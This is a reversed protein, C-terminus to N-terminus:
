VSEELERYLSLLKPPIKALIMERWTLMKFNPRDSSESKRLASSNKIAICKDSRYLETIKRNVPLVQEPQIEGVVETFPRFTSLHLFEDVNLAEYEYDSWIILKEFADTASDYVWVVKDTMQGFNMPLVSGTAIVRGEFLERSNHEHGTVIYDYRELLSEVMEESLNNTIEASEFECLLNCHLILFRKREDMPPKLAKLREEFIEQTPQYALFDIFVADSVMRATDRVLQHPHGDYHTAEIYDAAEILAPTKTKDRSYDHNGLLSFNARKLLNLTEVFTSSNCTSADLIDGVQIYLDAEIDFCRKIIDERLANFREASSPTTHAIAKGLHIDGIFAIKM